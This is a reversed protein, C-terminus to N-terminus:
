AFGMVSDLFELFKEVNGAEYKKLKSADFSRLTEPLDSITSKFLYGDNSLQEALEIQHNNMLTDNIVVILPKGLSLVDICTGAGAHSIV